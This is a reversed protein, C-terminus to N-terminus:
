TYCRLAATDDGGQEQCEVLSYVLARESHCCGWKTQRGSDLWRHISSKSVQTRFLLNEIQMSSTANSCLSVARSSPIVGWWGWVLGQSAPQNHELLLDIECQCPTTATAQLQYRSHRISIISPFGCCLTESSVRTVM